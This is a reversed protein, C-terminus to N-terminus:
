LEDVIEQRYKPSIYWEEPMEILQEAPADHDLYIYM